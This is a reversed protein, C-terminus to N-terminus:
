HTKGTKEKWMLVRLLNKWHKNKLFTKKRKKRTLIEAKRFFAEHRNESVLYIFHLILSWPKADSSQKFVFCSVTFGVKLGNLSTGNWKRKKKKFVMSSIYKKIEKKQINRKRKEKWFFFFYVYELISWYM